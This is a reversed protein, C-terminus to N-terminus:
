NLTLLDLVHKRKRENAENWLRKKKMSEYKGYTGLAGLALLPLVMRGSRGKLNKIFGAGAVPKYAAARAGATGSLLLALAKGKADLGEFEPEPVKPMTVPETKKKKDDKKAQAAKFGAVFAKKILEKDM